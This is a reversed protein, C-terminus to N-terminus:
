TKVQKSRSYRNGFHLAGPVPDDWGDCFYEPAQWCGKGDRNAMIQIYNIVGIQEHGKLEGDSAFQTNSRDFFITEGLWYKPTPPAPVTGM